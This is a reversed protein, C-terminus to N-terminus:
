GSRGSARAVAVIPVAVFAVLAFIGLVVGAGVLEPLSTMFGIVLAGFAVAALAAPLVQLLRPMPRGPGDAFEDADDADDDASGDSGDDYPVFAPNAGGDPRWRPPAPPATAALAADYAARRGPDGLVAWARNVQQMRAESRRRTAVDAGAQRDPHHARARQLYAARIERDSAAPPVGLVAYCDLDGETTVGHMTSTSM